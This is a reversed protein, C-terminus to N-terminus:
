FKRRKEIQSSFLFFDASMKPNTNPTKDGASGIFLVNTICVSPKYNCPTHIRLFEIVKRNTKAPVDCHEFDRLRQRSICPRLFTM